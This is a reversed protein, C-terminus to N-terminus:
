RSQRTTSIFAAGSMLGAALVGLGINVVQRREIM